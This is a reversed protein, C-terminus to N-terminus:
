PFYGDSDNYKPLPNNNKDRKQAPKKQQQQKKNSFHFFNTPNPTLILTLRTVLFWCYNKKGLTKKEEQLKPEKTTAPLM